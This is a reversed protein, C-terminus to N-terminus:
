SISELVEEIVEWRDGTRRVRYIFSASSLLGEWYDAKVEVSVADVFTVCQINFSLSRIAPEIVKVKRSTGDVENLIGEKEYETKEELAQGTSKAIVIPVEGAFRALLERPPDAGDLSLFYFHTDQQQLTGNHAFQYRFVAEYLDLL